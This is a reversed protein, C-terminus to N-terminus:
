PRDQKVIIRLDTGFREVSFSQEILSIFMSGLQKRMAKEAEVVAAKIVPEAAALMEDNMQKKLQELVTEENIIIKTTSM